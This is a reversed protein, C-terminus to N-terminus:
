PGTFWECSKNGDTLINLHFTIRQQVFCVDCNNDCTNLHEHMISRITKLAHEFRQRQKRSSIDLQGKSPSSQESIIKAVKSELSNNPYVHCVMDSHSFNTLVQGGERQVVVCM